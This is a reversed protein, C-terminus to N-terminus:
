QTAEKEWSNEIYIFTVSEGKSVIFQREDDLLVNISSCLNETIVLRQGDYAFQPLKICSLQHNETASINVIFYKAFYSAIKEGV